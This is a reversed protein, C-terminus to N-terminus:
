KVDKRANQVDFDGIRTRRLEKCYAFTKLNHAIDSILSRIYTGSGCEIEFEVLPYEFKIIKFSYVQIKKPEINFEIGERALDYARQGNVHVASYQPPTQLIEGVFSNSIENEIEDQTLVKTDSNLVKGTSDLTDTEENFKTLVVYTKKMKHFEDQRKTANRGILIILLGSAFPDLTGTHGIKTKKPYEHKIRRIVDYSTIGVPKDILLVEETTQSIITSM